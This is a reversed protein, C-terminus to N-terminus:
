KECFIFTIGPHQETNLFDLNILQQNMFLVFHAIKKM